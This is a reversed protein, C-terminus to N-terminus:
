CKLVSPSCFMEAKYPCQYDIPTVSGRSINVIHQLFSSFSLSARPTIPSMLPKESMIPNRPNPQIPRSFFFRDSRLEGEYIVPIVIQIEQRERGRERKIEGKKETLSKEIKKKEEQSSRTKTKM